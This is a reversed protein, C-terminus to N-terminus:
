RVAALVDALAKPESLMPWHGTPLGVIDLNDRQAGAFFPHDAALM